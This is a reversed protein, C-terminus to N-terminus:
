RSIEFTYGVRSNPQAAFTVNVKVLRVFPFSSPFRQLVEVQADTPITQCGYRVLRSSDTGLAVGAVFAALLSDQDACVIPGPLVNSHGISATSEPDDLAPEQAGQSAAPSADESETNSRRRNQHQFCRKEDSRGRKEDTSHRGTKAHARGRRALTFPRRKKSEYHEAKPKQSGQLLGV